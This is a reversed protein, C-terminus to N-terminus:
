ELGESIFADGFVLVGKKELDNIKNLMDEADFDYVIIKITKFKTNKNKKNQEKNIMQEYKTKM